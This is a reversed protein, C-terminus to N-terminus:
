EARPRSVKEAEATTKAGSKQKRQQITRAEEAAQYQQVRKNCRRNSRHQQEELQGDAGQREARCSETGKHSEEGGETGSYGRM